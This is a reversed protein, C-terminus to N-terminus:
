PFTLGKTQPLTSPATTTLSYNDFAASGATDAAAGDGEQSWMYGFAFSNVTVGSTTETDVQTGNLFYTLTVPGGAGGPFAAVIKLTNWTGAALPAPAGASGDTILFTGLGNASDLCKGARRM